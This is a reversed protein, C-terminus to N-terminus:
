AAGAASANWQIPFMAACSLCSKERGRSQSFIAQTRGTQPRPMPPCDPSRLSATWFTWNCTGIISLQLGGDCRLSAGSGQFSQTRLNEVNQNQAASDVSRPRSAVQRQPRLNGSLRQPDRQHLLVMKGGAGASFVRVQNVAAQPIELLEIEPQHPFRQVLALYQQADGGM